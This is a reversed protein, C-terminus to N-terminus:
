KVGLEKKLETKQQYLIHLKEKDQINPFKQKESKIDRDVLSLQQYTIMRQLADVKEKKVYDKANAVSIFRGDMWATTAVVAVVVAVVGKLLDTLGMDKLTSGM